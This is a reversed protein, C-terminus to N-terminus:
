FYSLKDEKDKFQKIKPTLFLTKWILNVVNAPLIM